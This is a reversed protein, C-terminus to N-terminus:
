VSLRNGVSAKANNVVNSRTCTRTRRITLTTPMSGSGAMGVVPEHASRPDPAADKFWESNALDHRNPLMKKPSSRRMGTAPSARSKGDLARETAPWRDLGECVVRFREGRCLLPAAVPGTRPRCGSVRSPVLAGHEIWPEDSRGRQSKRASDAVMRWAVPPMIKRIM